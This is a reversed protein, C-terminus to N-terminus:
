RLKVVKGIHEGNNLKFFYVGSGVENGNDDKGDWVAENIKLKLNQIKLERVLQGKVNYIKIETSESHETTKNFQLTTSSSFPNPCSTFYQDAEEPEDDIGYSYIYEYVGISSRETVFLYHIDGIDYFDFGYMVFLGNFCDISHLTDITTENLDYVFSVDSTKTFLIDNYVEPWSNISPYDLIYKLEPSIPNELSYLETKELPNSKCVCFYDGCLRFYLYNDQIQTFNNITNVIEPENNYLGNVVYLHQPYTDRTYFYGYGNRAIFDTEKNTINYTLLLPCEGPESIDYKRIDGDMFDSIYMSQPESDDFRVVSYLWDM